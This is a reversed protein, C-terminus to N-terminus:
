RRRRSVLALGGLGLLAVSSPEPVPISTVDLTFGYDDINWSGTGTVWATTFSTDDLAVEQATNNTINTTSGAISSIDDGHWRRYSVADWTASNLQLTSGDSTTGATLAITGFTISEGAVNFTGGSIDYEHAAPITAHIDYSIDASGTINFTITISDDIADGDLTLGNVTYSQSTIVADDVPSLAVLTGINLIATSADAETFAIVAAQSSLTSTFAFGLSLITHKTNIKM